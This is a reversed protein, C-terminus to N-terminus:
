CLQYEPTSMLQLTATKIFSEKSGADAYQKILESSVGSKTQLLNSALSGILQDKQVKEFHGIYEKWDITARIVSRKSYGMPKSGDEPTKRGMMQDDDDKIKVNLEDVDNIL